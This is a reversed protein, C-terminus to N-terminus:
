VVDLDDDANLLLLHKNRYDADSLLPRVDPGIRTFNLQHFPPRDIVILGLPILLTSGRLRHVWIEGRSLRM